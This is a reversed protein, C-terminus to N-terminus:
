SSRADCSRGGLLRPCKSRGRDAAAVALLRGARRLGSQSPGPRLVWVISRGPRDDHVVTDLALMTTARHFRVIRAALKPGLGFEDGFRRALHQRSWGVEAALDNITATGGSRVITRWAFSLEDPVRVDPIACRTLVDDCVAFRSPWDAVGQLREWLEWGRGGVVDACELTADWLARAPAGLLIRAGLPSLEIAVGEQHAGYSIIAPRGQLGSVVCRYNDPAQAPDAQTTVDIAPGVSVIFTLHRSPLGRHLGPAMGTMRYGVYQEVYPRLPPAPLAAAWDSRPEVNTLSDALLESSAGDVQGSTSPGRRAVSTPWGRSWPRM